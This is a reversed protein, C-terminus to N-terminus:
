TSHLATMSSSICSSLSSLWMMLRAWQCTWTQRKQWVGRRPSGQCWRAFISVSSEFVSKSIKMTTWAAFSPMSRATISIETSNLWSATSNASTSSHFGRQILCLSVLRLVSILSGRLCRRKKKLKKTSTYRKRLCGPCNLNLTLQFPTPKPKPLSESLYRLGWSSIMMHCFLNFFVQITTVCM